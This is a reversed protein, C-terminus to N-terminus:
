IVILIYNYRAFLTDKCKLKKGKYSISEKLIKNICFYALM